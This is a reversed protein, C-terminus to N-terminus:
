ERKDAKYQCSFFRFYAWLGGGTGLAVFARHAFSWDPMLPYTLPFVIVVAVAAASVATRGFGRFMKLSAVM